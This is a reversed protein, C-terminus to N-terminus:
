VLTMLIENRKGSCVSESDSGILVKGATLFQVGCRNVSPAHRTDEHPERDVADDGATPSAILQRQDGLRERVRVVEGIKGLNIIDEKLIVEM